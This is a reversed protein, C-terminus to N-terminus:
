GCRGVNTPKLLFPSGLRAQVQKHYIPAGTVYLICHAQSLRPGSVGQHVSLRNKVVSTLTVLQHNRITPYDVCNQCTNILHTNHSQTVKSKQSDLMGEALRIHLVGKSNCSSEYTRLAILNQSFSCFSPPWSGLEFPPSLEPMCPM